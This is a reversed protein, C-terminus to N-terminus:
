GFTISAIGTRPDPNVWPLVADCEPCAYDPSEPGVICGGLRLKGAEADDVMEMSPYGYVIPVPVIEARCRPCARMGEDRLENM